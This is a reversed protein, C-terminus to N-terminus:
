SNDLYFLLKAVYYGVKNFFYRRTSTVTEKRIWARHWM